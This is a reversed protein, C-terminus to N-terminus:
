QIGGKVKDIAVRDAKIEELLSFSKSRGKTLRMKAHYLEHYLIFRICNHRNKLIYKNCLKPRINYYQRGVGKKVVYSIDFLVLKITINKVNNRTDFETISQSVGFNAIKLKVISAIKKSLIDRAIYRFLKKLLRNRKYLRKATM